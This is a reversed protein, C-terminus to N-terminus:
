RDERMPIRSRPNGGTAVSMDFAFSAIEVAGGASDVTTEIEFCWTHATSINVPVQRWFLRPQQTRSEGLLASVGADDVIGTGFDVGAATVSLESVPQTSGDRFFRIIFPKTETDVLGIFMTRINVPTLSNQDARLWGSRYVAKHAFDCVFMSASTERNTVYVSPGRRYLSDALHSAGVPVEEEPPPKEAMKDPDLGGYEEEPVTLSTPKVSGVLGVGSLDLATTESLAGDAGLVLCLEREDKTVAFSSIHMNYDIERWFDGDFCLVLSQETSGAPCVACRYEGSEPDIVSTALLFRSRNVLYKMTRDISFSVKNIAGGKLTYFGDRALWILTGDRMVQISQPAVCGIGSTLPAPTAFDSISYMTTATFAYLDNNHSFVATIEDGNSDPFVFDIARFTGPFGPQSRMVMGPAGSINGVILRGQHVCMVKFVPVAVTQVMDDGLEADSVNDPLSFNSSAPVRSLMRPTPAVNDIDPTRYVNVAIVDHPVDSSTNSIGEHYWRSAYTSAITNQDPLSCRVLFQRQVDKIETGLTEELKKIIGDVGLEGGRIPDAKHPEIRVPSSAPSTASRNGFQDEYQIHYVFHGALVGGGDSSLMDGATGINGEWSYGHTNPYYHNRGVIDVGTPGEAIPASPIDTFGLRFANGAATIIYAQDVGNNFIVYDNMVVFQHPFDIPGAVTVSSTPESLNTVLPVFTPRNYMSPVLARNNQWPKHMLLSSGASVFLLDACKGFLRAHFVTGLPFLMSREDTFIEPGGPIPRFLFQDQDLDLESLTQYPAMVPVTRITGEPTPTFNLVRQGLAQPSYQVEAQGPPVVWQLVQQQAPSAM